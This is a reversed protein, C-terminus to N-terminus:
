RSSPARGGARRSPHHPDRGPGHRPRPGGRLRARQEVGPAAERHHPGGDLLRLGREALPRGVLAMTVLNGFWQHAIEHAAVSFITQRDQETSISPDLLLIYEFSLIAGWNEMAGFFQSRGPAAINDLKPLPYPTGFYDNYERVVDASSELAFAAQSLAGRQTVVGVETKGAMATRASSTASPSSCCTPPCRRRAASASASAATRRADAREEVPMNSVALEAAPVVAELTFTAKHAPEDWCPLMRRADAAEFQTFLARKKGARTEYDLAFLGVAQTGIRGAYDIVLRHAGRPIPKPFTFTATQAAADVTAARGRGRGRRRLAARGELLGPRAREPDRRGHARAVEIAITATGTFSLAAADPTVSVDYHRPM